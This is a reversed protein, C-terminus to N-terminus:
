TLVGSARGGPGHLTLTVPGPRITAAFIVPVRARGHRARLPKTVCVAGACLTLRYSGRRKLRVRRAAVNAVQGSASTRSSVRVRMVTRRRHVLALNARRTTDARPKAAPTTAPEDGTPPDEAPVTDQPQAEPPAAGTCAGGLSDCSAEFASDYVNWHTALYSGAAPSPNFYDDRGCDYTQTMGAQAGTLQPCSTNTYPAASSGGDAYCMVDYGDTCHGYSTAHPAHPLV